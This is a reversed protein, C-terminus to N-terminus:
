ESERKREFYKSEKVVETRRLALFFVPM